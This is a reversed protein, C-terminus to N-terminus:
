EYHSRAQVSRVDRTIAARVDTLIKPEHYRGDAMPSRYRRRLNRPGVRGVAKQREISTNTIGKRHSPQVAPGCIVAQYRNGSLRHHRSQSPGSLKNVVYTCYVPWTSVSHLLEIDTSQYARSPLAGPQLDVRPVFPNPLFKLGSGASFPQV